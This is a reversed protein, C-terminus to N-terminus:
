RPYVLYFLFMTIEFTFTYLYIPLDRALRDRSSANRSGLACCSKTYILHSWLNSTTAMITMVKLWTHTTAHRRTTVTVFLRMTIFTAPTWYGAFFFFRLLLWLRLWTAAWHTAGTAMVNMMMVIVTATRTAMTTVTATRTATMATM